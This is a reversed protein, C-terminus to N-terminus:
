YALTLSSFWNCFIRIFVCSLLSATFFLCVAWIFHSLPPHSLVPQSIKVWTQALTCTYYMVNRHCEARQLHPWSGSLRERGTGASPESWVSPTGRERVRRVPFPGPRQVFGRTPLHVSSLPPEVPIFQNNQTRLTGRTVQLVHTPSCPPHHVHTLTELGSFSGCVCVCVSIFNKRGNCIIYKLFKLQIRDRSVLRQGFYPFFYYIIIKKSQTWTKRRYSIGHPWHWMYDESNTTLICDPLHVRANIGLQM